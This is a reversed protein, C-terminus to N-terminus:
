VCGAKLQVKFVASQLNFDMACKAAECTCNLTITESKMKQMEFSQSHFSYLKLSDAETTETGFKSILKLMDEKTVMYYICGVPGDTM